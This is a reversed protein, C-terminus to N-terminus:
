RLPDGTVGPALGVRVIESYTDDKLGFPAIYETILSGEKQDGLIWHTFVGGRGRVKYEEFRCMDVAWEHGNTAFGRVRTALRACSGQRQHRPINKRICPNESLRISRGTSNHHSRRKMFYDVTSFFSGGM